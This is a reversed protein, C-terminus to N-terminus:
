ARFQQFQPILNWCCDCRNGCGDIVEIGNSGIKNQHIDFGASPHIADIVCVDDAILEVNRDDTQHGPGIFCVNLLIVFCFLVSVEDLRKM